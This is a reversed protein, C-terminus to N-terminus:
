FSRAAFSRLFIGRCMIKSHFSCLPGASNSRLVLHVITYMYMYDPNKGLASM